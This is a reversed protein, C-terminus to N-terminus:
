RSTQIKWELEDRKIKRDNDLYSVSLKLTVRDNDQFILKGPIRVTKIHTLQDYAFNRVPIENDNIFFRVYDEPNVTFFSMFEMEGFCSVPPPCPRPPKKYASLSTASETRLLESKRLSRKRHDSLLQYLEMKKTSDLGAIVKQYHMIEQQISSAAYLYVSGSNETEIRKLITEIKETCGSLLILSIVQLIIRKM